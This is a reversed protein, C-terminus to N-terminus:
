VFFTNDLYNFRINLWNKVRQTSNFYGGEQPFKSYFESIPAIGTVQKTAIFKLGWKRGDLACYDCTEGMNYTKNPDYTSVEPNTANTWIEWGDNLHPNRYSPTQPIGNEDVCLETLDEKLNDYGISDIWDELLRIINDTTLVNKNKLENYRTIIEDHYLRWLQGSPTNLDIGLQSYTIDNRICSGQASSGFISDKDYVTPCWLKGDWTCWIWNKAFGDFDGIVNGLIFYDILYDIKFYKEMEIRAESINSITSITPISRSLRIIYDKANKSLIDTNSLEIPNDGDYPNGNIDVLDKPNRIEFATWDVNGGWLSSESLTGDLILQKNSKKDMAYNDRHKKLNFSYIGLKKGNFYLMMPFGDPHTLAGTNYDNQFKGNSTIISNNANLYEFPKKNGHEHTQYIQEALRYAVICQGRFADIYYKKLHFSDQPVWNSIKIKSGDAIDFAFNKWYFAMSTDGQCKFKKIAKKFYNGDGDYVEIYGNLNADKTTPLADAILNVYACVKPMPIEIFDKDSLNGAGGPQFGTDKLAKQFETMGKATLHLSDTNVITSDIGVNEHMVGNNDRYSVIKGESDTKIETRKEPDEIYKFTGGIEPYQATEEDIFDSIDQQMQTIAASTSQQVKQEIDNIPITGIKKRVKAM